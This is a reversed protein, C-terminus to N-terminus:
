REIMGLAALQAKMATVQAPTATDPYVLNKGFYTLDRAGIAVPMTEGAVTSAGIGLLGAANESGDAAAPDWAGFNGTATVIGLVQGAKCTQSEGLTVNEISRNGNAPSQLWNWSRPEQAISSM